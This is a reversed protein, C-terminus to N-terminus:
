GKTTELPYLKSDNPVSELILGNAVFYGKHDYQINYLSYSSEEKLLKKAAAKIHKVGKKKKFLKARFNVGNWLIKHGSTVILDKNPLNNGLSNMDFKVISIPFDPSCTTHIVRAVQHKISLDSNGAIYDGKKINQIPVQDGNAMLINTDKAVCIVVALSTIQGITVTETDPITLSIAILVIDNLDASGVLSAIPFVITPSFIVNSISSDGTSDEVYLEFNTGIPATVQNLIISIMSNFNQPNDYLYQVSGTAGDSSYIWQGGSITSNLSIFRSGPQPSWAGPAMISTIIQGGLQNTGFDDFVIGQM